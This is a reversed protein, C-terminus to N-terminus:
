RVILGTTKSMPSAKGTAIAIFESRITEYPPQGVFFEFTFHTQTRQGNANLGTELYGDMSFERIGKAADEPHQKAFLPQDGDSSELTAQFFEKGNGDIVQGTAYVKYIGWPFLSTWILLTNEAVKVREVIYRQMGAPTLGRSYLDLMHAIGSDRCPADGSEACARTLLAAAQWDDPDAQTVPKLASLAFTADGSNLAAEGAFKSLVAGGPIEDLLQKYIASAGADDHATSLNGANAFQQKQQPTMRDVLDSTSERQSAPAPAASNQSLSDKSNEFREETRWVRESWNDGIRAFLQQAFAQDGQRVAMFAVANREFNTSGYLQELSAFGQKVRDWSVAPAQAKNKCCNLSLALQFYIFDGEPGGVRDAINKAFLESGGPEGNWKPLLYNAHATYFYYYAPEFAIAEELLKAARQNDWQQALCVTQMTRYWEPDKASLSRAKELIDQAKQARQQFLQWAEGTVSDGSGNGRAKWAFQLYAEALAVRPTISDPAADIWRQLRDIHQNWDADTAARSGPTRLVGYFTHLKWAGGPFRSKQSRATAAIEELKPFNEKDLLDRVYVQFTKATDSDADADEDNAPPTATQQAPIRPSLAPYIKSPHQAALLVSAFAFVILARTAPKLSLM